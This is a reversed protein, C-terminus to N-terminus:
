ARLYRRFAVEFSIIENLSLDHLASQLADIQADPDQELGGSRAIVRWFEDPPMPSAEMHDKM